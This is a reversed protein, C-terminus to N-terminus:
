QGRRELPLSITSKVVKKSFVYQKLSKTKNQSRWVKLTKEFENYEEDHEVGGDTDKLNEFLLVFIMISDLFYDTFPQLVGIYKLYNIYEDVYDKPKTFAGNLELNYSKSEILWKYNRQIDFGSIHSDHDNGSIIALATLAASSFNFTYLIDSINYLKFKGKTAKIVSVVGTHFIIDSNNSLVVTRGNAARAISMVASGPAMVTDWGQECSVQLFCQKMENTVTVTKKLLWEIKKTQGYKIFHISNDTSEVKKILNTVKRKNMEKRYEVTSKNICKELPTDFGDLYLICRNKDLYLSLVKLFNLCSERDNQFGKEYPSFHKVFIENFTGLIDVYITTGYQQIDHLSSLVTFPSNSKKIFKWANKVGM